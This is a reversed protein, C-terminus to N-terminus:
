PNTPAPIVTIDLTKGDREITMKIPDPKQLFKFIISDPDDGMQEGNVAVIVDGAQLGAKEAPSGEITGDINLGNGAALLMVGLRYPPMENDALMPVDPAKLNKSISPERNTIMNRIFSSVPMAAGDMNALVVFTYGLDPYFGFDASIGPAGGNHGHRRHGKSRNDGILCAYYANTGLSIKGELYLDTIAPNLLKHQQVALAYKHLDDLTSFGGGAPGGKISHALINERWVDGKEMMDPLYKTYGIALNPVPMDIAYCDTNKMGAPDYIYKRVYDYYSEGTVREIISGLVVPGANSYGFKEGPDFELPEDVFTSILDDVTRISKWKKEYAENWYSGLGSSHTLLHRITVNEAVESNPYDPLHKGVKDDLSIKGQQILQCIALGTFMKNISGLNFKTDPKNAVNYRRSALGYAKRFLLKDGKALLVAGSFEGKDVLEDVRQNIAQVMEDDSMNKHISQLTKSIKKSFEISTFRHPPDPEISFNLTDRGYPGPKYHLKVSNPGAPRAGHPEAGKLQSRLTRFQKVLKDKGGFEDKMSQGVNQAIFAEISSDGTQTLLTEIKRAARLRPSDQAEVVTSLAMILLLGAPITYIKRM